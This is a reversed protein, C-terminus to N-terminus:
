GVRVDATFWAAALLLQPVAAMWPIVVGLPVNAGVLGLVAGTWGIGASALYVATNLPILRVLAARTELGLTRLAWYTFVLGAAGGAAVLQTMAFSAM